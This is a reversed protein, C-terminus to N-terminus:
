SWGMPHRKALEGMAGLADPTWGRRSRYRGEAPVYQKASMDYGLADPFMDRFTTIDQSAQVQSIGFTDEIHQRRISGHVVMRWDIYDLRRAQAYPIRRDSV